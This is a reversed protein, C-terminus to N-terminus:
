AAVGEQRIRLDFYYVAFLVGFFVMSAFQVVATMAIGIAYVHLFFEIALIAYSVMAVGLQLAFFALAVLFTRMLEKRNFVRAFGSGFAALVGVREIVLADYMMFVTILM